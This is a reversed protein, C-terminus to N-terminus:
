RQARMMRAQDKMQQREDRQKEKVQRRARAMQHKLMVRQARSINMKRWSAKQAAQSSKLARWDSKQRVKLDHMPSLQIQRAKLGIPSVLLASGLGLTLLFRRMKGGPPQSQAAGDLNRNSGARFGGV